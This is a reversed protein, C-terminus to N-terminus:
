FKMTRPWIESFRTPNFTVKLHKSGRDTYGILRDAMEVIGLMDSQLTQAKPTVRPPQTLAATRQPDRGRGNHCIEVRGRRADSIAMFNMFDIMHLRANRRVKQQQTSQHM